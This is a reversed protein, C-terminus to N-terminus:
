GVNCHFCLLGRNIGSIHCHDINLFLMKGKTGAGPRWREHPEECIACKGDQKDYMNNYEEVTINYKTSLRWKRTVELNPIPREKKKQCSKCHYQYGRTFKKHKSFNEKAQFRKCQSCRLLDISSM